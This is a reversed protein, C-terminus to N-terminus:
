NVAAAGGFSGRVAQPLVVADIVHIVGNSAEVDAAIVKAGNVTVGSGTADIELSGGQVTKVTLKKGAIDGAMVKGPIVHYTLVTGLADNHKGDTLTSLVESPVKAFAADNPAFVTFPGEGKLTEVLGAIKVASVLTSFGDTSAAIGVIDKKGHNDALASKAPAIAAAAVVAAIAIKRLGFM